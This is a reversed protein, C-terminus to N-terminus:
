ARRAVRSWFREITEVAEAFAELDAPKRVCCNAHLEYAEVIEQDSESGTMIVIPIRRLEPDRKIETLVERGNMRPLHLDLLILHPVPSDSHGGERRLLEM